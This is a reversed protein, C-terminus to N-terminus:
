TGALEIGVRQILPGARHQVQRFGGVHHHLVPRLFLQESSVAATLRAARRDSECMESYPGALSFEGGGRAPPPQPIPQLCYKHTM